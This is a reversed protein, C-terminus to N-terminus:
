PLLSCEWIPGIVLRRRRMKHCNRLKRCTVGSLLLRVPVLKMLLRKRWRRYAPRAGPYRQVKTGVASREFNGAGLPERFCLAFSVSVFSGGVNGQLVRGETASYRQEVCGTVRTAACSYVMEPVLSGRVTAPAIEARMRSPSATASVAMPALATALATSATPLARM